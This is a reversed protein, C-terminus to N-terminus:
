GPVNVCEMKTALYDMMQSLLDHVRPGDESRLDSPMLPLAFMVELYLQLEGVLSPHKNTLKIASRVAELSRLTSNLEDERQVLTKEPVELRWSDIIASNLESKLYEPISVLELLDLTLGLKYNRFDGEREILGERGLISEYYEIQSLLDSCTRLVETSMLNDLNM